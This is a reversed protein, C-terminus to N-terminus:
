NISRSKIWECPAEKSSSRSASTKSTSRGMSASDFHPIEDGMEPQIRSLDNHIVPDLYM